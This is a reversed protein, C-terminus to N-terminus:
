DSAVGFFLILIGIRVIVNGGTFYSRLWDTIPLGDWGGLPPLQPTPRTAQRDVPLATPSQASRTPDSNLAAAAAPERERAPPASARPKAPPTAGAM